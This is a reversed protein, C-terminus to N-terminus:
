QIDQLWQNVPESIAMSMCRSLANAVVNEKGPKYQIIFDYGFFKPLWQQQQEPTHLSQNLFEKLSKQDTKITFKHGLLYHRLKAIAQTIAYLERSYASQKQQRASLKKSYYAVPHANQLLVAGIGIRSADTELTFPQTFNPQALIPSSTLTAKLKAFAEKAITTWKFNDKQAYRNAPSGFLCLEQYVTQLLRHPRLLREIVQSINTKAM